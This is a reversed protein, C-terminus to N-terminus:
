AEGRRSNRLICAECTGLRPIKAALREQGHPYAPSVSAFVNFSHPSAIILWPQRASRLSHIM